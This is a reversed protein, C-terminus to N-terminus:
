LQMNHRTSLGTNSRAVEEMAPICDSGMLILVTRQTTQLYDLSIKHEQERFFRGAQSLKETVVQSYEFMSPIDSRIDLKVFFMLSINATRM